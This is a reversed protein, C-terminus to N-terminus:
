SHEEVLNIIRHVSATPITMRGTGEPVLNMEQSPDGMHPILVKNKQGDIALWGVSRNVLLPPEETPIEWWEGDDSYADYWEILVLRM